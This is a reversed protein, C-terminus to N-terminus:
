LDWALGEWGRPPPALRWIQEPVNAALREELAHEARLPALQSRYNAIAAHKRTPNPSTPVIAPTPWVSARMLKALRWTLLGPVHCYGADQYCFWAPADSTSRLSARVMLAADHAVIHDPNALGLPLVVATPRFEAVVDALALAVEPSRVRQSARIYQHDVFDLWRPSAGLVALAAGDERRRHAVVDDGAEFGSAADWATPPDPYPVPGGAYVTVVLTGPYSAILESCSLVADDLHPSVVLLRELVDPGTTEWTPNARV